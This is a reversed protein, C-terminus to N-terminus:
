GRRAIQVRKWTMEEHNDVVRGSPVAIYQNVMHVHEACLPPKENPNAGMVLSVNGCLAGKDAGGREGSKPAICTQSRGVVRNQSRELSAQADSANQQRADWQARQAAIAAELAEPAEEIVLIERQIAERFKPNALFGAPCQAIDGGNPDGAGQLEVHQKLLDDHFITIGRQTNRIILVGGEAAAKNLQNLFSLSSTRAAPAATETTQEPADVPM